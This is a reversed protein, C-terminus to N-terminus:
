GWQFIKNKMLQDKKGAPLGFLNDDIKNFYDAKKRKFM